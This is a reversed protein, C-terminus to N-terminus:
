SLDSLVDPIGTHVNAFIDRLEEIETKLQNYETEFNTCDVVPPIPQFITDTMTPDIQARIEPVSSSIKNVSQFLNKTGAIYRSNAVIIKQGGRRRSSGRFM